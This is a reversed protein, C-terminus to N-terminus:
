LASFAAGNLKAHPELMKTFTIAIFLKPLETIDLAPLPVMIRVTGSAGNFRTFTGRM